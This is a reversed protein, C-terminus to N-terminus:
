CRTYRGGFDGARVGRPIQVDPALMVGGAPDVFRDGRELATESDGPVPRGSENGKFRNRFQMRIETIRAHM